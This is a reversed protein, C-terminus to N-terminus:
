DITSEKQLLMHLYMFLSFFAGRGEQKCSIALQCIIVDLLSDCIKPYFDNSNHNQENRRLDGRKESLLTSKLILQYVSMLRLVFTVKIWELLFFSSAVLPQDTAYRSYNVNGIVLESHLVFFFSAVVVVFVGM